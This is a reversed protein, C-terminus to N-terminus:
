SMRGRCYRPRSPSVAVDVSIAITQGEVYGRERLGQRLGEMQPLDEARTAGLIAIRTLRAAQQGEAARLLTLSALSATLFARRDIM